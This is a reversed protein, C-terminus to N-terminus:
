VGFMGVRDPKQINMPVGFADSLDREIKTGLIEAIRGNKILAAIGDEHLFVQYSITQETERGDPERCNHGMLSILAQTERDYFGASWLIGSAAVDFPEYYTIWAMALGSMSETTATALASLAESRYSIPVGMYLFLAAQPIQDLARPRHNLWLEVPTLPQGIRIKAGTMQLEHTIHKDLEIALTDLLTSCQRKLMAFLRNM